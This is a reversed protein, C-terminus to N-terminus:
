NGRLVVKNSCASCHWYPLYRRGSIYREPILQLVVKRNPVQDFCPQCIYHQPETAIPDGAESLVPRADARYVHGGPSLEFLTYRSREAIAEKVVRLEQTAQFYQQQLQLLQANHAFLSDQAKLLQENMRSVVDALQNADRLGIAAKGIDKAVGIATAVGSLLALDM